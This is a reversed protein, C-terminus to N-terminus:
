ARTELVTVGLRLVGEFFFWPRSRPRPGAVPRALRAGQPGPPRHEPPQGAAGAARLEGRQRDLAPGGRLSSPM